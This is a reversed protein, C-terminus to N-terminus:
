DTRVIMPREDREMHMNIMKSEFLMDMISGHVELLENRVTHEDMQKQMATVNMRNLNRLTNSLANLRDHTLKKWETPVKQHGRMNNYLVWLWNYSLVINGEAIATNVASILESFVDVFKRNVNWDNKERSFSSRM